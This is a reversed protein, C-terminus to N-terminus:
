RTAMFRKVALPVFFVGYLLLSYKISDQLILFRINKRREEKWMKICKYLISLFMFPLIYAWTFSNRTLVLYFTITSLIDLIYKVISFYHPIIKTMDNERVEGPHYDKNKMKKIVYSIICEGNLFTWHLLIFYIFLLFLYDFKNRKFLFAYISLIFATFLHICGIWKDSM